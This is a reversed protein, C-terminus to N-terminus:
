ASVLSALPALPQSLQGLFLRYAPNHTEEWHQYPLGAPLGAVGRIEAPRYRCGWWSAAWTPATTATTSSASTGTPTCPTVFAM